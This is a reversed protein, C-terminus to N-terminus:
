PHEGILITILDPDFGPLVWPANKDQFGRDVTSKAFDPDVLGPMKNPSPPLTSALGNGLLNAAEMTSRSARKSVFVMVGQGLGKAAGCNRAFDLNPPLINWKAGTIGLVMDTGLINAIAGWVDITEQEAVGMQGCVFLRVRQGAFPELQKVLEPAAKTLLKSRPGQAAIGKELQSLNRSAGEMRLTLADAQKSVADAEQQASRSDTLAANAKKEAGEAKDGLSGIVNGSLENTRVLCILSASLAAVLLITSLRGVRDRHARTLCKRGLDAVLEGTCAVIVFAESIYEGREWGVLSSVDSATFMMRETAFFLVM